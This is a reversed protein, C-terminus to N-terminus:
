GLSIKLHQCTHGFSFRAAESLSVIDPRPRKQPNRPLQYPLFLLGSCALFTTSSSGLRRAVAVFDGDDVGGVACVLGDYLLTNIAGAWFSLLALGSLFLVLASVAGKVRRMPFEWIFPMSDDLNEAPVSSTLLVLYLISSALFHSFVASALCSLVAWVTANCSIVFSMLACFACVQTDFIFAKTSSAFSCKADALIIIDRPVGLPSPNCSLTVVTFAM